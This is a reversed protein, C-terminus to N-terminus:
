KVSKTRDVGGSSLVFVNFPLNTDSDVDASSVGHVNGTQGINEIYM